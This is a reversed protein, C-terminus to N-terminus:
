KHVNKNLLEHLSSRVNDFLKIDRLEELTFWRMANHDTERLTVEQFPITVTYGFDIHFHALEDKREGIIEEYIYYPRPITFTHEDVKEQRPMYAEIDIGTEEKVERLANEYPNENLEKHGGPPMWVGLKKHDLLLVRPVKENSIVFVTATMHKEGLITM